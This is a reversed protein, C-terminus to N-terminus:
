VFLYIIKAGYAKDVEYKHRGPQESVFVDNDCSKWIRVGNIFLLLAYTSITMYNYVVQM